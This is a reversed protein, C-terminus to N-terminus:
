PQDKKRTQRHCSSSLGPACRSHFIHTGIAFGVASGVFMDSSWHDQALLRSATVTLATGYAVVRVWNKPYERAVVTAMSWAFIAHGSPFATDLAHHNLFDGNGNGEGPRQRGAIFQMPAYILFSNTVTELELTGLERLHPNETKLGYAWLGAVSAAIGGLAINSTNQYLQLHSGPLQREIRKDTALFAATGALVMADWKINSRQFPATYIEKQDELGRRLMRGVLHNTQDPDHTAASSDGDKSSPEMRLGMVNFSPASAPFANARLPVLTVPATQGCCGVCFAVAAFGVLFTSNMDTIAKGQVIQGYITRYCIESRGAKIGATKRPGKVKFEHRREPRRVSIQSYHYKLYTRQKIRLKKLTIKDLADPKAAQV